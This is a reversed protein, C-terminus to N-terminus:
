NSHDHNTEGEQWIALRKSNSWAAQENETMIHTKMPLTILIGCSPKFSEHLFNWFLSRHALLLSGLIVDFNAILLCRGDLKSNKIMDSLDKNILDEWTRGLHRQGPSLKDLVWTNEDEFSIGLRSAIDAERNLWSISLFLIGIRNRLSIGQLSSLLQSVSQDSM